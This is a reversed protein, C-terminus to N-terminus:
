DIKCKNHITDINEQQRQGDRSPVCHGKKKNDVGFISLKDCPWSPAALMMQQPPEADGDAETEAKTQENRCSSKLQVFTM